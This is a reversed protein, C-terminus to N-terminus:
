APLRKILQADTAISKVLEASADKMRMEFAEQYSRWSGSLKRRRADGQFVKSFTTGDVSVRMVLSASIMGGMTSLTQAQLLELRLRCCAGEPVQVSKEGQAALADTLDRAIVALLDSYPVHKLHATNGGYNWIRDSPAAVIQFGQMESKQAYGCSFPLLLYMFIERRM